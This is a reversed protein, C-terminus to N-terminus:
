TRQLGQHPCLSHLPEQPEVHLFISNSAPTLPNGLYRSVWGPPIISIHPDLHVAAGGSTRLFSLAGPFALSQRYVTMHVEYISVLM